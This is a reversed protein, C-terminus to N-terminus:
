FDIAGKQTNATRQLTFVPTDSKIHLETDPSSPATDGLGVRNNGDSLVITDGINLNNNSSRVLIKANPTSPGSSLLTIPGDSYIGSGTIEGSSSIHGSATVNGTATIGGTVSLGDLSTSTVAAGIASKGDSAIAFKVDGDENFVQFKHFTGDNDTDLYVRVDKDSKIDFNDDVPGFLTTTQVTGFSGTSSVSGSIDGGILLDGSGSIKLGPNNHQTRFIHDMPEENYNFYLKDTDADKQWARIFNIGGAKIDVKDGTPFGIYTDTDGTHYIYDELYIESGSITGGVSLSSSVYLSGTIQASGSVRLSGTLPSDLQKLGLLAM